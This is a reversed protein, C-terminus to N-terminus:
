RLRCSATPKAGPESIGMNAFCAFTGGGNGSLSTMVRHGSASHSFSVTYNGAPLSRSFPTEVNSFLGPISVEAYPEANFHVRMTKPESQPTPKAPPRAIPAPRTEPAAVSLTRSVGPDSKTRFKAFFWISAPMLIILGAALIRRGKSSSSPLLRTSARPSWDEAERRLSVAEQFPKLRLGQLYEAFAERDMAQGTKRLFDSLDRKFEKLEDYRDQVRVALLRALIRKLDPSATAPPIVEGKRAMQLIRVDSPDDYAPAGFLCEYFVLGLSFIDSRHDIMGGEAQEPSMYRFKGKIQGVQTRASQLISKAIGFDSLKVDGQLSLLVNSPSVDRHVIQLPEGSEQNRREHAFQLTTAVELAIFGAAAVSLPREEKRLGKLLDRLEIGEVYEMVLYPNESEFNLDYVDVINPHKLHAQIRAEDTLARQYDERDVQDPPLLKIAVIKEFGAAGQTKGIWVDAMGGRGIQKVLAYRGLHTGPM